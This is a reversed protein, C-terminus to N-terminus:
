NLQVKGGILKMPAFHLRVVHQYTCCSVCPLVSLGGPSAYSEEKECTGAFLFNTFWWIWANRQVGFVGPSDFLMMVQYGPNTPGVNLSSVNVM